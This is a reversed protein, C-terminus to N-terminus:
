NVTIQYTTEPTTTTALCQDTQCLLLNLADLTSCDVGDWKACDNPAQTLPSPAAAPVTNWDFTSYLSCLKKASTCEENSHNREDCVRTDCDDWSTTKAPIESKHSHLTIEMTPAPSDPTKFTPSAGPSGTSPKISLTFESLPTILSFAFLPGSTTTTSASSPTSLSSSVIVSTTTSSISTSNNDGEFYPDDTGDYSYTVDIGAPNIVRDPFSLGEAKYSAALNYPTLTPMPCAEASVTTISTSTTPEISCGTTICTTTYFKTTFTGDTGVSASGSERCNSVTTTGASCSETSSSSSTSQRSSSPEDEPEDDEPKGDTTNDDKDKDKDKDDEPKDSKGKKGDKSGGPPSSCSQIFPIPICPFTFSPIDPLNFHITPLINIDILNWSPFKPIWILISGGCDTCWIVPLIVDKSKGDETTTTNFWTNATIGSIQIAPYEL